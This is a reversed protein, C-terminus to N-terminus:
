KSCSEIKVLETRENGGKIMVGLIFGVGPAYHKYEVVGPDLQSTEKTLLVNTYPVGRVTLSEDTSLVKAQDVAVKPAFEQFYHDSARPRRLMIFGADADNVGAEWSGETSGSPFEITDEGFYWVKEFKDQAFWDKTDEVLVLPTGEFSRHHVETTEVFEITRKISSVCIEDRTPIGEKTGEYVFLRGVPLPFYQNDIAHPPTFNAPIVDPPHVVASVSLSAIVAFALGISLPRTRTRADHVFRRVRPM